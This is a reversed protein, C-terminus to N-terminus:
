LQTTSITDPHNVQKLQILMEELIELKVKYSQIIAEIVKENASSEALEKRLQVKEKDLESFERKLDELIEPHERTYKELESQRNSIQSTYYAEADSLEVLEPDAVVAATTSESANGKSSSRDMYDNLYWASAFILIAAAAKWLYPFLRLTKREVPPNLQHDLKQWIAPPVELGDFEDKHETVFKELPDKKM